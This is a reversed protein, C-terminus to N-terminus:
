GKELMDEWDLFQVLIEQMAPPNKVLQAILSANVKHKRRFNDAMRRKSGCSQQDLDWQGGQNFSESTVCELGTAPPGQTQTQTKVHRVWRETMDSEKHGWLSYGALSRQGHSEGPSFVATPHWKRSWPIRAVWPSFRCTRGRCASPSGQHSLPLTSPAVIHSGVWSLTM